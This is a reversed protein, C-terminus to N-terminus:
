AYSEGMGGQASVPVVDQAPLYHSFDVLRGTDPHSGIAHRVHWDLLVTIAGGMIFIVMDKTMLSIAAVAAVAEVAAKRRAAIANPDHPPTAHIQAVSGLNVQFIGYVLAGTAIAALVQSEPKFITKPLNM